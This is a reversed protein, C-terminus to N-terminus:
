MESCSRRVSARWTAFARTLIPASAADTGTPPARGSEGCPSALGAAKSRSTPNRGASITGVSTSDGLLLQRFVIKSSVHAGDGPSAGLGALTKTLCGHASKAVRSNALTIPKQSISHAKQRFRAPATGM